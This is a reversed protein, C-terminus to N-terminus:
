DDCILPNLFILNFKLSHGCCAILSVMSSSVARQSLWLYLCRCVCMRCVGSVGCVYICVLLCKDLGGGM